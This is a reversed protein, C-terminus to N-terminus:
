QQAVAAVAWNKAAWLDNLAKDRMGSQSDPVMKFLYMALDYFMESNSALHDPLHRYQFLIEAEERTM